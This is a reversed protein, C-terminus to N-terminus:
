NRKKKWFKFSFQLTSYKNEHRPFPENMFSTVTVFHPMLSMSLTHCLTVNVFHPMFHCQCLTAYLSTSVTIYLSTSVTVFLLTSVTVFLSTSLTVFHSTFQHSTSLNVFHAMFHRSMTVLHSMLHCEIVFQGFSSFHQTVFHCFIVENSATHCMLLVHGLKVSQSVTVNHSLPFFSSECEDSQYLTMTIVTMRIVAIRIVTMRIVTMRVVTMRIVTMRIVTMTIVTMRIVTMRIVTMRMLWDSLKENQYTDKQHNLLRSLTTRNLTMRVFTSAGLEGGGRNEKKDVQRELNSAWNDPARIIAPLRQQGVRKLIKIQSRVRIEIKPMLFNTWDVKLSIKRCVIKNLFLDLSLSRKCSRKRRGYRDKIGLNDAKQRGLKLSNSMSLSLMFPCFRPRTEVSSTPISTRTM